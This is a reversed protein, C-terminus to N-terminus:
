LLPFISRLLWVSSPRLLPQSVSLFSLLTDWFHTTQFVLTVSRQQHVFVSRTRTRPSFLTIPLLNPSTPSHTLTRRGQLISFGAASCARVQAGPTTFVNNRFVTSQFVTIINTSVGTVIGPYTTGVLGSPVGSNAQIPVCTSVLLYPCWSLLYPCWSVHRGAVRM